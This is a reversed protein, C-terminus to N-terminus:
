NKGALLERYIDAKNDIVALASRLEEITEVVRERHEILQAYRDAQTHDGAHVLLAFSKMQQINMGTLRLCRLIEVWEVDAGSYRRHGSESRAVDIILGEREYYRLTDMTVGSKDVMEAPTLQPPDIKPTM